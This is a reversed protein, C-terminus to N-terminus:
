QPQSPPGFGSGQDLVTASRQFLGHAQIKGTADLVKVAVVDLCDTQIPLRIVAEREAVLGLSGLPLQVAQAGPHALSIRGRGGSPPQVSRLLEALAPLVGIGGRFESPREGSPQGAGVAVSRDDM